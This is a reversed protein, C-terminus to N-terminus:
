IPAVKGGAALIEAALNHAERLAASTNPLVTNTSISAAWVVSDIARIADLLGEVVTGTVESDAPM